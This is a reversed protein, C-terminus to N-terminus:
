CRDLYTTMLISLAANAQLLKAQISARTAPAVDIKAQRRDEVPAILAASAGMAGNLAAEFVLM